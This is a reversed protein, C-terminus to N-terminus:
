LDRCKEVYYELLNYKAHCTNVTKYRFSQQKVWRCKPLHCYTKYTYKKVCQPRSLIATLKRVVNEFANEQTFIYLNRTLNWRFFANTWIIAQRRRPSLGNDSCITYHKSVCIHTVRGWHTLNIISLLLEPVLQSFARLHIGCFVFLSTDVNGCHTKFLASVCTSLLYRKDEMLQYHQISLASACSCLLEM